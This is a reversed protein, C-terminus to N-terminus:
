VGEPGVVGLGEEEGLARLLERPAARRVKMACSRSLNRPRSATTSLHGRGVTLVLGRARGGPLGVELLSIRDGRFRRIWRFTRKGDRDWVLGWLGAVKENSRRAFQWKLVFAGPLEHAGRSRMPV